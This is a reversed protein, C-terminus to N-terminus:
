DEGTQRRVIQYESFEQSPRVKYDKQHKRYSQSGTLGWCNNAYESRRDGPVSGRTDPHRHPYSVGLYGGKMKQKELTVWDTSNEANCAEVNYANGHMAVGERDWWLPTLCYSLCVHGERNLSLRLSTPDTVGTHIVRSMRNNSVFLM